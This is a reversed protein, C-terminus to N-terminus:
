DRVAEPGEPHGAEQGEARCCFALVIVPMQPCDTSLGHCTLRRSCVHSLYLCPRLLLRCSYVM